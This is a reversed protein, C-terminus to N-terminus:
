QLTKTRHCTFTLEILNSKLLGRVQNAKDVVHILKTKRGPGIWKTEDTVFRFDALAEVGKKSRDPKSGRVNSIPTANLMDFQFFVIVAIAIVFAFIIIPFRFRFCIAPFFTKLSRDGNRRFTTTSM